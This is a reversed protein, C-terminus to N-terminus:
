MTCKAARTMDPLCLNSWIESTVGDKPSSDARSTNVEVIDTENMTNQRLFLGERYGRLELSVVLNRASARTM